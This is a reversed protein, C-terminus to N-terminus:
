FAFKDGIYQLGKSAMLSSPTFFLRLLSFGSNFFYYYFLALPVLGPRPTLSRAWFFSCFLAPQLHVSPPSCHFFLYSPFLLTLFPPPSKSFTNGCKYGRWTEQSWKWEKFIGSLHGFWVFLPSVIQIWQFITTLIHAISLFYIYPFFIVCTM